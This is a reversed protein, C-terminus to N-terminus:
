MLMRVTERLQRPPKARTRLNSRMLNIEDFGRLGYTLPTIVAFEDRCNRGNEDGDHHVSEEAHRIARGHNSTVAAVVLLREAPDVCRADGPHETDAKSDDQTAHTDALGAVLGFPVDVSHGDNRPYQKGELGPKSDPRAVVVSDCEELTEM